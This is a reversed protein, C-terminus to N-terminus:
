RWCEKKATLKVVQMWEECVGTRNPNFVDPVNIRRCSGCMQNERNLFSPNSSRSGPKPRTFTPTISETM